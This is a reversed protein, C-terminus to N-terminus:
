VFFVAFFADTSQLSTILHFEFRLQEYLSKNLSVICVQAKGDLIALMNEAAKRKAVKKTEGTGEM